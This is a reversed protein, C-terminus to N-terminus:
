ETKTAMSPLIRQRSPSTMLRSRRVAPREARMEAVLEVLTTRVTDLIAVFFSTGVRWYVREIVQSPPLDLGGGWSQRERKALDNNM